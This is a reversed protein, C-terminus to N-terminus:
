NEQDSTRGRRPRNAPALRNQVVAQWGEGLLLPARPVVYDIFFAEDEPEIGSRVSAVEPSDAMLEALLGAAEILDSAQQEPDTGAAIDGQQDLQILVFVKEFGGFRELFVRYDTAAPAPFPREPRVVALVTVPPGPSQPM